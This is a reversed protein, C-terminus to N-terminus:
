VEYDEDAAEAEGGFLDAFLPGLATVAGSVDAIIQAAESRPAVPAVPAPARRAFYLAGGVGAAALLGGGIIAAVTSGKM